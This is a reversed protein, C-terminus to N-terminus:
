ILVFDSIIRRLINQLAIRIAVFLVFFDGCSHQLM